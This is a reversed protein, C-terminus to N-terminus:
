YRYERSEPEEQSDEIIRQMIKEALTLRAAVSNLNVQNDRVEWLSLEISRAMKDKDVCILRERLGPM